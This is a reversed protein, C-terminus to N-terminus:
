TEKRNPNALVLHASDKSTRQSNTEGTTMYLHPSGEQRLPLSDVQLAPAGSSVPEIGPQSSGKSSPM